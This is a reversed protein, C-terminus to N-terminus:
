EGVLEKSTRLTALIRETPTLGDKLRKSHGGDINHFSTHPCSLVVPQMLKSIPLWGPQCRNKPHLDNWADRAVDGMCVVADLKLLAMFEELWPRARRAEQTKDRNGIFWPVVNWHVCVHRALGAQDRLWTFNDATPDPNDPSIFVTTSAAIQSPDQLLFLVKGDVGGSDPDIYPITKGDDGVASDHLMDYVLRNLPAVHVEARRKKRRELEAPNELARPTKWIKAM